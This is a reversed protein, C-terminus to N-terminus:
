SGLATLTSCECHSSVSSRRRHRGIREPAGVGLKLGSAKSDQFLGTGWSSSDSAEESAGQDGNQTNQTDSTGNNDM